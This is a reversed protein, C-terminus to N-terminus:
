RTLSDYVISTFQDPKLFAVGWTKDYDANPKLAIIEELSKGEDILKQMRSRVTTLMKLYDQLGQKNSLEGHGPIIKTHDDAIAIITKATRIMGDVSGESSTDIFPYLGNFYVDGTHIVNADKFHVISDGDTHANSQHM